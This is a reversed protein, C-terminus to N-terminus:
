TIKYNPFIFLVIRGALMLNQPEGGEIVRIAVLVRHDAAEIKLQPCLV